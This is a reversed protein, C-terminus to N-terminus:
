HQVTHRHALGLPGTELAHRHDARGVGHQAEGAGRSLQGAPAPFREMNDGEVRMGAAAVDDHSRGVGDDGEGPRAGFGEGFGQGGGRDVREPGRPIRHGDVRGRGSGAFAETDPEHTRSGFRQAAKAVADRELAVGLRGADGDHGPVAAREGARLGADLRGRREPVRHHQLRRGPSAPRADPADVPRGLQEADDLAGMGLRLVGEAVGRQVELRQQDTGAVELHGGDGVALPLDPREPGVVGRQAAPAVLEDDLRGRGPEGLGLGCGRALRGLLQQQAAAVPTHGGHGEQVVGTGLRWAEELDVRPQWGLVAEDFLRGPDVEHACLELNGEAAPEIVLRRWRATMGDHSAEVGLVGLAAEGGRGAQHGPRPVRGPGTNPDVGGDGLPVHECRRVRHEHGLHQRPTRGTLRRSHPQPAGEALGRDHDVTAARVLPEQEFDEPAVLHAMGLDVVGEHIAEGVLALDGDLSVSIHGEEGGGDVGVLGLAGDVLGPEEGRRPAATGPRCRADAAVDLEAVPAAAVPQVDVAQARGRVVDLEVTRRCRDAELSEPGELAPQAEGGARRTHDRGHLTVRVQHLDVPRGVPEMAVVLADHSRGRRADDDGERNGGAVDHGAAVGDGDDLAHLHLRGHRRRERATDAAQQGARALLDVGAGGQHLEVRGVRLAVGLRHRGAQGQGGGRGPRAVRRTPPAGVEPQQAAEHEAVVDIWGVRRRGHRAERGAVPLDAEAGGRALVRRGGAVGGRSGGLM